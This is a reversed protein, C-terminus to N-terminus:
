SLKDGEQIGASKEGTVERKIVEEFVGVKNASM